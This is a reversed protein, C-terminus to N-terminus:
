RVGTLVAVYTGVHEGGIGSAFRLSAPVAVRARRHRGLTAVFREWEEAPPLSASATFPGDVPELFDLATRQIVVRAELGRERLALHVLAWGSLIALASLSGGFATSRHNLNPELPAGLRISSGDWHEVVAGLARTLPIHEHLYRTIEDLRV